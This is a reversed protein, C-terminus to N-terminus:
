LHRNLLIELSSVLSECYNSELTESKYSVLKNQLWNCFVCILTLAWFASASKKMGANEVEQMGSKKVEQM